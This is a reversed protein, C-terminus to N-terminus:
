RSHSTISEFSFLFISHESGFLPFVNCLGQIVTMCSSHSLEVSTIFSLHLFFHTTFSHSLKTFYFPNPVIYFGHFILFSAHQLKLFSKCLMEEFKVSVASFELTERDSFTGILYM